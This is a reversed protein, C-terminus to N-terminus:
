EPYFDKVLVKGKTAKEIKLLCGISPHRKGHVWRHVTSSPVELKRAFAHPTLQEGALYEKLTM